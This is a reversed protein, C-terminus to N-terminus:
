VKMSLRENKVRLSSLGEENKMREDQWWDWVGLSWCQARVWHPIFLSGSTWSWTVNQFLPTACGTMSSGTGFLLSIRFSSLGSIVECALLAFLPVVPIFWYGLSVLLATIFHGLSTKNYFAERILISVSSGPGSLVLYSWLICCSSWSWSGLGLDVDLGLGLALVLILTLVLSWPGLGLVFSWVLFLPGLSLGLGLVLVSSWSGLGLSLGLVLFWSGLVLSWPGLGLGLGLVLSWPGLVLGLVLVMVLVLVLSM